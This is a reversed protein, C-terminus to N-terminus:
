CFINKLFRFGLKVALFVLGAIVGSLLPHDEDIPFKIM